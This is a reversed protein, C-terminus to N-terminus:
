AAQEAKRMADAVLAHRQETTLECDCETSVIEVRIWAGPEGILAIDISFAGCVPCSVIM